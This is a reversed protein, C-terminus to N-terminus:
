KNLKLHLENRIHRIHKQLRESLQLLKNGALINQINYNFEDISRASRTMKNISQIAQDVELKFSLATM